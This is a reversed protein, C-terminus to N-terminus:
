IRAGAPVPTTTRCWNSRTSGRTCSTATLPTTSVGRILRHVERGTLKESGCWALAEQTALGEEGILARLARGARREYDAVAADREALAGAVAKAWRALRGEKDAQEERM